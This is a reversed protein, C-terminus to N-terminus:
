LSGLIAHRKIRDEWNNLVYVALKNYDENEFTGYADSIYVRLCRDFNVGKQWHKFQDSLLFEDLVKSAHVEHEQDVRNDKWFKM